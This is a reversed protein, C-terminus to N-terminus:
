AKTERLKEGFWSKFWNPLFYGIYGSFTGFAASLWGLYYFITFWTGTKEGILLGVGHFVIVLITFIGVLGIFIFGTKELNKKENKMKNAKVLSCSTILISISFIVLTHYAFALMFFLYETEMITLNIIMGISLGNLAAVLINLWDGNEDFFVEKAFAFIFYSNVAIFCFAINIFIDTYKSQLLITPSFFDLYKGISSSIIALSYFMLANSLYLSSAKKREKHKLLCRITLYTMFFAVLTEFILASIPVTNRILLFIVM